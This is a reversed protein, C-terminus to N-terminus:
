PQNKKESGHRPISRFVGVEFVTYAQWTVARETCHLRVYRARVPEFRLIDSDGHFNRRETVGTVERWAKGDASVHVTYARAYAKWWTVAVAGVTEMAGLDFQLWQPDPKAKDSWWM